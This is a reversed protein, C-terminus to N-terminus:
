KKTRFVITGRRIHSLLCVFSYSSSESSGDIQLEPRLIHLNILRILNGEAQTVTSNIEGADPLALELYGSMLELLQPWLTLDAAAEYILGILESILETPDPQTQMLSLPLSL